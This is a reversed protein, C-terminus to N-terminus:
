RNRQALYDNRGPKGWRLGAAGIDSVYLQNDFVTMATFGISAREMVKAWTSGNYRWLRAINNGWTTTAYLKGDFVQMDPICPSDGTAVEGPAAVQTWTRGDPSSWVSGGNGNGWNCTAAYLKGNYIELANVGIDNKRGFGNLNKQLWGPVGPAFVEIRGNSFDSVYVQGSSAVSAQSAGRLEGHRDGWRGGITAQYAGSANFIEIRNNWIDSVYIRGQADVTVDDPNDFRGHEDSWDSDPGGLTLVVTKTTSNYKKVTRNPYEQSIYLFGASDFALGLPNCLGTNDTRCDDTIGIQDVMALTTPNYIMVRNRNRDAVYLNKTIPNVAVDAIWGFYDDQAPLIENNFSKDPNLILVRYSDVIYIRGDAAFDLGHPWTLNNNDRIDHGATGFTWLWAGQPSFKLLRQGSEELVYLNGQPDLKARPKNFHQNDSQYCVDWTGVYTDTVQGGSANYKAVACHYPDSAFLNGNADIAIDWASRDNIFVSCTAASSGTCKIIQGHGSDAIYLAGSPSLAMGQPNGLGTYFLSCTWTGADYPCRRVQQNDQEMIYLTGDAQAALRIPTNLHTADNGSEYRTGITATNKYVPAAGSTWDFIVVRHAWQESVFMHGLGDFAIGYANELWDTARGDLDYEIETVSQVRDGGPTYELIRSGDALWINGDPAKAIDKPQNFADEGGSSIGAVGRKWALSRDANYKLLRYGNEEVVYLSNDVPDLLLHGPRNIYVTGTEPLYPEGSVGLTKVPRYSLGPAVQNVTVPDQAPLAAQSAAGPQSLPAAPPRAPQTPPPSQFAAASSSTIMLIAMIFFMSRLFSRPMM